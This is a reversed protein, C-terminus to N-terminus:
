DKSSTMHNTLYLSLWFCLWTLSIGLMLLFISLCVALYEQM